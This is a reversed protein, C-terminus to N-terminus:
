AMQVSCFQGHLLSRKLLLLPGFNVLAADTRHCLHSKSLLPPRGKRAVLTEMNKGRGDTM